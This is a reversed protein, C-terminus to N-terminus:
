EFLDISMNAVKLGDTRTGQKLDNKINYILEELSKAGKTNALHDLLEKQSKVGKTAYTNYVTQVAINSVHKEGRNLARKLEVRIKEVFLAKSQAKQEPTMEVKAVVQKTNEMKKKGKGKRQAQLTLGLGM